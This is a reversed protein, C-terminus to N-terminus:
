CRRSNFSFLVTALQLNWKDAINWYFQGCNPRRQRLTQDLFNKFTNCLQVLVVKKPRGRVEVKDIYISWWFSVREGLWKKSKQKQNM